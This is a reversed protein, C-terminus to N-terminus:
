RGGAPQDVRNDHVQLAPKRGSSTSLRTTLAGAFARLHRRATRRAAEGRLGPHDRRQGVAHQGTIAVDNGWGVFIGCAPDIATAGNDTVHNGRVAVSDVIALSIGGRGIQQAQELMEDTFPNRLNGQLRNDQIVLDRVPHTARLLPTM